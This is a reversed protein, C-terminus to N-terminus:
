SRRYYANTYDPGIAATHTVFFDVQINMFTLTQIM